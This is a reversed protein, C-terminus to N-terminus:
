SSQNHTKEGTKKNKKGENAKMPLPLSNLMNFTLPHFFVRASRFPPAGRRGLM